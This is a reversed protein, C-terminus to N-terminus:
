DGQQIQVTVTQGDTFNGKESHPDTRFEIIGSNYGRHNVNGVYWKGGADLSIFSYRPTNNFAASTATADSLKLLLTNTVPNFLIENQDHDRSDTEFTLSVSLDNNDYWHQFRRQTQPRFAASLDPSTTNSAAPIDIRAIFYDYTNEGYQVWDGGKLSTGQEWSQPEGGPFPELGYAERAADVLEQLKTIAAVFIPSNGPHSDPDLFGADEMLGVLDIYQPPHASSDSLDEPYHLFYVHGHLDYHWEVFVSFDPDLKTWTKVFVESGSTGESDYYLVFDGVLPIDDQINYEELGHAAFCAQVSEYTTWTFTGDEISTVNMVWVGDDQGLVEFAHAPALLFSLLTFLVIFRM